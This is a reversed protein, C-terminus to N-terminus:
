RAQFNSLSINKNKLSVGTVQALKALSLNYDILAKLEASQQTALDRQYQLVFYNTSLGVRFKEEEAELRKQALERAVRYAEVRMYNTEVGRVASRVELALQQEQAKFSAQAQDLSVRAQAAYARSFVTNLPVSLTLGLSWNQYRFKFTDKLAQSVNGPVTGIVAGFLPDNNEYLIQSGSVGPSWYQATLSLDPLLQNRAYSLNFEAAAMAQDQGAEVKDFAPKDAPVLRVQAVDPMEAALNIVARLADEYNKLLAQADLIDAQRSAVDAQANLVEIPALTGVEVSRRNKELLEQALNLSQQRVKLNEIGYVLNWYAQEVQYVLDQVFKAFQKESIDLTNQAVIIERQSVRWGFNRLLPQSFAFNLTTEFRPNITQFRSNTDTKIQNLNLTLSGGLPIEQTLQATYSDRLQKTTDGADLWSYSAQATDRRTFSFSLSPIFKEKALSVGIDSLEPNMVQVALDYNNKLAKLICEELKLTLTKEQAPPTQSPLAPSGAALFFVLGILGIMRRNM